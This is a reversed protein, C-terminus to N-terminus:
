IWVFKLKKLQSQVAFRGDALLGSLVMRLLKVPDADASATTPEASTSSAM